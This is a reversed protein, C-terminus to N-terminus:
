THSHKWANDSLSGVCFCLASRVMGLGVVGCWVMGFRPLCWAPAAPESFFSGTTPELIWGGDTASSHLWLKKYSKHFHPNSPPAKVKMSCSLQERHLNENIETVKGTLTNRQRKEMGPIKYKGTEIQRSNLRSKCRSPPFIWNAEVSWLLKWHKVWFINQGFWFRDVMDIRWHWYLSIKSVLFKVLDLLWQIPNVDSATLIMRYRQVDVNICQVILMLTEFWDRM